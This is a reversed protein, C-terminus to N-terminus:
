RSAPHCSQGNNVRGALLDLLTSKGAGSPGMLYTLEGPKVCLSVERLLAKLRRQPVVRASGAHPACSGDSARGQRGLRSYEIPGVKESRSKRKVEVYYSLRHASLQV